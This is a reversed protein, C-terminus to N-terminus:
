APESQSSAPAEGAVKTWESLAERCWAEFEPTGYGETQMSRRLMLALRDGAQIMARRRAAREQVVELPYELM